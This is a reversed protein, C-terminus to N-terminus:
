SSKESVNTDIHSMIEGSRSFIIGERTNLYEILFRDIPRESPTKPIENLVQFYDPYAGQGLVEAVESLFDDVVLQVDEQLIVTAIVTKEGPANSELPVGYVYVDNIQSHKTLATMMDDVNIFEGSRRVAGGKRYSFYFWGDEDKYGCDGSRFWNGRTKEESSKPDKFYTVADVDGSENRFCIEGIEYPECPEDNEDLIECIMGPPPKGISGVPGSGPPNFTLGGEATGYFEFIKVNFRKEFDDWMTAPMGASLVFRVQHDKDTPKEPESFIATAMSGLLNFTTCKYHSVIDWLRSKTFTRSIVLPLGLAFSYGLSILQANAHSLSLGTYPRDEPTLGLIPYVAGITSFREYKSQIAKPDGTTGSTFLMQMTDEFPRPQVERALAQAENVNQLHEDLSSIHDNEQETKGDIVWTWELTEPWDALELMNSLGETSVIAGRSETHQIMYALREPQVRIDIPVFLTGLIESALMAEVFEPHNRMVIAFRDGEELGAEQLASALKLGNELLQKATRKEEVFQDNEISVFTLMLRDPDKESWHKIAGLPTFLKAM